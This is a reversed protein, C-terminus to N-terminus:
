RCNEDTCNHAYLYVIKRAVRANIVQNLAASVYVNEDRDKRSFEDFNFSFGYFTSRFSCPIHPSFFLSSLSSENERQNWTSRSDIVTLTRGPQTIQISIAAIIDLSFPPFEAEYTFYSFAGRERVRKRNM